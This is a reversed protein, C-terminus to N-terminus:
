KVKFEVLEVGEKTSIRNNSNRNEYYSKVNRKVSPAYWFTESFSGNATNGFVNNWYGSCDIKYSDFTGAPVTVKEFGIVRCEAQFYGSGNSYPLKDYSSKQDISMPFKYPGNCIAEKSNQMTRCANLDLNTRLTNVINTAKNTIRFVLNDGDAEAFESQFQRLEKDTWADIVRYTWTDGKTFTPREVPANTQAHLGVCSAAVVAFALINRM